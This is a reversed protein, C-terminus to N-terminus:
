SPKRHVQHCAKCDKAKTFREAAGEEGAYLAKLSAALEDTRKKWDEIKGYPPKTKGLATFLEMLEKKEAETAKGDLVKNDLNDRTGRNGPTLYARKMIQNIGRDEDDPSDDDAHLGFPLFLALTTLTFVWFKLRTM